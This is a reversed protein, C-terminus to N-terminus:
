LLWLFSMCLSAPNDKLEDLVLSPSALGKYGGPKTELGEGRCSAKKKGREGSAKWLPWVM